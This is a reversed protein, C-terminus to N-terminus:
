VVVRERGKIGKIEKWSLSSAFRIRSFEVAM